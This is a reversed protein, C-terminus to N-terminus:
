EGRLPRLSPDHEFPDRDLELGAAVVGLVLHVHGDPAEERVVGREPAGQDVLAEEIPVVPGVPARAARDVDVSRHGSSSRETTSREAPRTPNRGTCRRRPAIRSTTASAAGRGTRIPDVAPATRVAGWGQARGRRSPSVIWCWERRNIAQATPANPGIRPPAVRATQM